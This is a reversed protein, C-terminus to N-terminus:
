FNISVFNINIKLIVKMRPPTLIFCFVVVGCLKAVWAGLHFSVIRFDLGRRESICTELIQPLDQKQNTEGFRMCIRSTSPLYPAFNWINLVFEVGVKM